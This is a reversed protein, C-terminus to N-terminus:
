DRESEDLRRASVSFGGYFGNHKNHTEAVITGKSTKVNLFQVEHEEGMSPLTIAPTTEISMLKAGAFGRLDDGCTMYREECCGQGTDRLGMGSGDVFWIRLEDGIMEIRAIEADPPTEM